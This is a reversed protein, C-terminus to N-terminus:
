RGAGGREAGGRGAGRVCNITKSVHMEATFRRGEQNRRRAHRRTGRKWGKKRRWWWNRRVHTMYLRSTPLSANRVELVSCRSPRGGPGQGPGMMAIV